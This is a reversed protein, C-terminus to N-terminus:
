DLWQDQFVTIWRSRSSLIDRYHGARAGMIEKRDTNRRDKSSLMELFTIDQDGMIQLQNGYMTIRGDKSSLIGLLIM